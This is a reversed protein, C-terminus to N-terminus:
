GEVDPATAYASAAVEDFRNLFTEAASPGSQTGEGVCARGAAIIGDVAQLHPDDLSFQLARGLRATEANQSQEMYKGCIRQMTANGNFRGALTRLESDTLIGSKLLEMAQMDMADATAHYKGYFNQEVTKRVSLAQENAAAALKDMEGKLEKRYADLAAIRKQKGEPTLDRSNRANQIDQQAQKDKNVLKIFEPAAEKYIREIQKMYATLKQAM